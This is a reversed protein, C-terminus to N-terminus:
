NETLNKAAKRDFIKQAIYGATGLVAYAAVVSIVTGVVSKALDKAFENATYPEVIEIQHDM